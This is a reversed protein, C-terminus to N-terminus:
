RGGRNWVLGVFARDARLETMRGPTVRVHGAEAERCDRAICERLKALDVTGRGVYSRFLVELKAAIQMPDSM